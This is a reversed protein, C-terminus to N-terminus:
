GGSREDEKGEVKVLVEGSRFTRISLTNFHLHEFPMSSFTGSYVLYIYLMVEYWQIKM